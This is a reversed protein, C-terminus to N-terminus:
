NEIEIELNKNNDKLTKINKEEDNLKSKFKKIIDNQYKIKKQIEKLENIYKTKENINDKNLKEKTKIFEDKTKKLERNSQSYKLM